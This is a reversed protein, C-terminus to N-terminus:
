RPDKWKQDAVVILPHTDGRRLAKTALLADAAERTVLEDAVLDRLVEELMLRRDPPQKPTVARAATPSAM